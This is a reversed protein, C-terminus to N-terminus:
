GTSKTLEPLVAELISTKGSGPASMINLVYIGHDDMNNKINEALKDNQQLLDKELEVYHM